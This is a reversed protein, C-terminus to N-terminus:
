VHAPPDNLGGHVKAALVFKEGINRLHHVVVEPSREITAAIDVVERGELTGAIVALEQDSFM